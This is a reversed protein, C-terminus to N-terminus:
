QEDLIAAVYRGTAGQAGVLAERALRSMAYFSEKDALVETVARGLGAADPVMITHGKVIDMAWAFNDMHPGHITPVGWAIPELINQGGTDVLSGGVFAVQAVGYLDFLEGVTDIILLDIGQASKSRLGCTIGAANAMEILISISGPHRPAVMTFLGPIHARAVRIADMVLREEGERISGAIFVTRDSCGLSARIALARSPDVARVADFKLNGLVAVQKGGLAKFREADVNAIALVQARQLVHAMLPRIWQYRRYAKESLRANVFLTRIGAKQAQTLLNPWIETEVMILAQPKLRELYRRMVWALDFPLPLIL